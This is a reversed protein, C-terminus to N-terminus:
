PLSMFCGMLFDAATRTGLGCTTAVPFFITAADIELDM